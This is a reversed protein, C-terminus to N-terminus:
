ILGGDSQYHVTADTSLDIVKCSTGSKCACQWEPALNDSFGDKYGYCVEISANSPCVFGGSREQHRPIGRGSVNTGTVEVRVYVPPGHSTQSVFSQNRQGPVCSVNSADCFTTTSYVDVVQEYGVLVERWIRLGDQVLRGAPAGVCVYGLPAIPSGVALVFVVSVIFLLIGVVLARTRSVLCDGRKM